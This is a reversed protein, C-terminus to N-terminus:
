FPVVFILTPQKGMAGRPCVERKIWTALPGGAFEGLEVLTCVIEVEHLILGTAPDGIRRDGPKRLAAVDWCSRSVFRGRFKAREEDIANPQLDKWGEVQPAPTKEDAVALTAQNIGRIGKMVHQHGARTVEVEFTPGTSPVHPLEEHVGVINEALWREPNDADAFATFEGESVHAFVRTRLEVFTVELNGGILVAGTITPTGFHVGRANPEEKVTTM